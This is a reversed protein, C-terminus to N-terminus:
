PAGISAKYAKLKEKYLKPFFIMLDMNDRQYQKLLQDQRTKASTMDLVTAGPVIQNYAANTQQMVPLITAALTVPEVDAITSGVPLALPTQTISNGVVRVGGPAVLPEALAYLQQKEAATFTADPGRTAFQQVLRLANYDFPRNARANYLQNGVDTTGSITVPSTLSVASAAGELRRVNAAAEQYLASRPNFSDALAQENGPADLALGTREFVLTALEKQVPDGPISASGVPAGAAGLAPVVARRAADLAQVPWPSITPGPLNLELGAERSLATPRRYDQGTAYALAQPWPGFSLGVTRLADTARQYATKTEGLKPQSGTGASLLGPDPLVLSLPSFYATGSRGGTRMRALRGLGPMDTPIPIAAAYYGPIGQRELTKKRERVTEALNLVVGPYKAALEATIKAQSIPWSAFPIAGSVARGAGGLADMDGFITKVRDSTADLAQTARQQWLTGLSAAVEPTVGSAIAADTVDGASFRGRPDLTDTLVGEQRLSQLFEPATAAIRRDAGTNWMGLRGAINAFMNKTSFFVRFFPDLVGRTAGVVPALLPLGMGTAKPQFLSFGAGAIGRIVPGATPGRSTEYGIQGEGIAGLVNYNTLGLDNLLAQTEDPLRAFPKTEYFNDAMSQRAREWDRRTAGEGKGFLLYKGEITGEDQLANRVTATIQNRFQQDVTAPIRWLPTAKGAFNERLNRWGADLALALERKHMDGTMGVTNAANLLAKGAARVAAPAEPLLERAVARAGRVAYPAGAAAGAGLLGAALVQENTANPDQKAAFGGAVAGTVARGVLPDTLKPSINLGLLTEAGSRAMTEIARVTDRNEPLSVTAPTIGELELMALANLVSDNSPLKQLAVKGSADLIRNNGAASKATWLGYRTEGPKGTDMRLGSSSLKIRISELKRKLGARVGEVTAADEEPRLLWPNMVVRDDAAPAPLQLNALKERGAKGAPIQEFFQTADKTRQFERWPESYHAVRDVDTFDLGSNLAAGLLAKAKAMTDRTGISARSRVHTVTYGTGDVAKHIALPGYVDAPVEQPKGGKVPLRITKKTPPPLDRVYQNLNAMLTRFEDTRQQQEAAAARVLQQQKAALPGDTAPDASRRQLLDPDYVVVDETVPLLDDLTNVAATRSDAVTLPEWREPYDTGNPATGSRKEEIRVKGDALPVLRYESSAFGRDLSQYAAVKPATTRERVPPPAAATPVRDVPPPAVLEPVPAPQEVPLPPPPPPLERPPPPVPDVAEPPTVPAPPPVVAEPAAAPPRVAARAKARAATPSYLRAARLRDFLGTLVAPALNDVPKEVSWDIGSDLAAAVAAKASSLTGTREMALGSPIHTVTYGGTYTLSKHIALDGYITASVTRESVPLDGAVVITGPKGRLKPVLAELRPLLRPAVDEEVATRKRQRTTPRAVPAPTSDSALADPVAAPPPEIPVPGIAPAPVASAEPVSAAVPEPAALEVAPAPSPVAPAPEVVRPLPAPPAVPALPSVPTATLGRLDEVERTAAAVQDRLRQLMNREATTRPRGAGSALVAYQQYATRAAGLRDSAARRMGDLLEPTLPAPEPVAARYRPNLGTTLIAEGNPGDAVLAPDARLRQVVASATDDPIGLRQQFYSAGPLYITDLTSDGGSVLRAARQYTVDDVLPPTPAAGVAAPAEPVVTPEPVVPAPARRRTRQPVPAPVVPETTPVPVVPAAAPTPVTAEPTPLVTVQEPTPVPVVPESTLTPTVPEPTPTPVVADPATTAPTVAAPTRIRTARARAPTPTVPVPLPPGNRALRYENTLADMAAYDGRRTADLLEAAITTMPRASPVPVVPAAGRPLKLDIGRGARLANQLNPASSPIVTLDLAQALAPNTEALKSWLKADSQVRSILYELHAATQDRPVRPEGYIARLANPTGDGFNVRQLDYIAKGQGGLEGRALRDVVDVASVPVRGPTEAAAALATEPLLAGTAVPAAPEPPLLAPSPAPSPATPEPLLPPTTPAGASRTAAQAADPSQSILDRLASEAPTEPAGAALAPGRAALFNRFAGGARPGGLGIAAGAGAGALVDRQLQDDGTAGSALAGAGAGYVAGGVTRAVPAPLKGLGSGLARFPLAQLEGAGLLARGIPALRPIRALAGGGLTVYNSPYSLFEAVNTVARTAQDPSRALQQRAAIPHGAALQQLASVTNRDDDTFQYGPTLMKDALQAGKALTMGAGSIGKGAGTDLEMLKGLSQNVLESAGLIGADYGAPLRTEAAGPNVARVIGGVLPVDGVVPATRIRQLNAIFDDWASM